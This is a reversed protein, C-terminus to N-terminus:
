REPWTNRVAAEAAERRLRSLLSATAAARQQWFTALSPTLLLALRQADCWRAAEDALWGLTAPADQELLARLVRWREGARVGLELDRGARALDARVLILGSRVPTLLATVFPGLGDAAPTRMPPAARLHLPLQPPAGMGSAEVALAESLLAGWRLYFPDAVARLMALKLLFLPLWSLLHEWLLAQRAHRWRGGLEESSSAELEGLRAYLGLLLALHDPEAPPPQGIARWFGAVRDAAEGGIMGEDGLYVSAYPYLQFLFLESHASASPLAGLDLLQALEALAPRPTECLAALARFLEM